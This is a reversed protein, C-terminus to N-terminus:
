EAATVFCLNQVSFSVFGGNICTALSDVAVVCRRFLRCLFFSNGGFVQCRCVVDAKVCCGKSGAKATLERICGIIITVALIAQIDLSNTPVDALALQVNDTAAAGILGIIEKGCPSELRRFGVNSM